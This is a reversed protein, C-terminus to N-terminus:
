SVDPPLTVLSPQWWMMLWFSPVTIKWTGCWPWNRFHFNGLVAFSDAKFGPVKSAHTNFWELVAQLNVTAPTATDTDDAVGDGDRAISYISLVTEAAVPINLEKNLVHILIPNVEIEGVLNVETAGLDTGKLKLGIPALLIPAFPDRGGDDATWTCRGLALYLTSLGKEELNELGKRSIARVSSIRDQDSPLLSRCLNVM